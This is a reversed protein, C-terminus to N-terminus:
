SYLEKTPNQVSLAHISSAKNVISSRIGETYTLASYSDLASTTHHKRSPSIPSTSRMAASVNINEAKGGSAGLINKM